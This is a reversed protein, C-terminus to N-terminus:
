SDAARTFYFLEINTVSSNEFLVSCHVSVYYYGLDTGDTPFNCNGEDHHQAMTVVVIWVNFVSIPVWYSAFMTVLDRQCVEWVGYVFAYVAFSSM